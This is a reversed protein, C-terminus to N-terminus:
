VSMSPSLEKFECSEEEELANKVEEIYAFLEPTEPKFLNPTIKKSYFDYLEKATALVMLTSALILIALDPIVNICAVSLLFIVAFYLLIDELLQFIRQKRYSANNQNVLKNYDAIKKVAEDCLTMPLLEQNLMEEMLFNKLKTLTEIENILQLKRQGDEQTMFFPIEKKKIKLENLEQDILPALQIIKQELTEKKKKFNLIFPNISNLIAEYDSKPASNQYCEIIKQQAKQSLNLIDIGSENTLIGQQTLILGVVLHLITHTKKTQDLINIGSSEETNILQKMTTPLKEYQERSFICNRPNNPLNEKYRYCDTQSALFMTKKWCYLDHKLPGLFNRDSDIDRKLPEYIRKFSHKWRSFEEHFKLASGFDILSIKKSHFNYAFNDPSIDGHALQYTKHFNYIEIGSKIAFTLALDDSLTDNLFKDISQGRHSLFFSTKHHMGGLTLVIPDSNLLGVKKNIRIENEWMEDRSTRGTFKKKAYAKGQKNLAYKVSGNSGDKRYDTDTKLVNAAALIEGNSLKWFSHTLNENNGVQGRKEGNAKFTKKLKKVTPNDQFYLEAKNFEESLEQESVKFGLLKKEELTRPYFDIDESDKIKM